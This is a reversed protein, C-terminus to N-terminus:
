PYSGLARPRMRVAAPHIRPASPIKSFPPVGSSIGMTMVAPSSSRRVVTRRIASWAAFAPMRRVARESGGVREEAPLQAPSKVAAMYAKPAAELGVEGRQQGRVLDGVSSFPNM